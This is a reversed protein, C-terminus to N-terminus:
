LFELLTVETPSISTYDCTELLSRMGTINSSLDSTELQVNQLIM